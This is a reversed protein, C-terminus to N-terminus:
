RCPSNAPRCSPAPAASSSSSARWRRLKLYPVSRCSGRRMSLHAICSSGALAKSRRDTRQAFILRGEDIDTQFGQTANKKPERTPGSTRCARSDPCLLSRLRLSAIKPRPSGDIAANTIDLRTIRAALCRWRSNPASRLVKWLEYMDIDRGDRRREGSGHDRVACRVPADTRMTKRAKRKWSAWFGLLDRFRICWWGHLPPCM